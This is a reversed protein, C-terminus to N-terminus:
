ELRNLRALYYAVAAMVGSAALLIASLAAGQGLDGTETILEANLQGLMYSGTGGVLTPTAFETYLPIYVLIIAIFIGPAALPLLIRKARVYWGAGLDTAAELLGPDIAKMAAYVPIVTYTIYSTSLVVVVAFRDFLLWSLPHNPDVLGVRELARNIIGERGLVVRYAYIRVIPNLEDALVLLLILPLEWRGARFALVYALPLGIALQVLMTATAIEFTTVAIERYSETRFITSFNSLTWGGVHLLSNYQFGILFLTLLPAVFFLGLLVLPASLLWWPTLAHTRRRWDIRGGPPTGSTM